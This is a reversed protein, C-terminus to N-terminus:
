HLFWCSFAAVICLCGGCVCLCTKRKLCKGKRKHTKTRQKQQQFFLRTVIDIFCSAVVGMEVSQLLNTLSLVIHSIRQQHPV